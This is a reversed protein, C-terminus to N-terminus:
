RYEGDSQEAHHRGEGTRIFIGDGLVELREAGGLGGGVGFNEGREARRFQAVAM